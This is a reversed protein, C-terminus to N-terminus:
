STPKPQQFGFQKYTDFLRDKDSENKINECIENYIIEAQQQITNLYLEHTAHQEDEKLFYLIQLLKAMVISDHRVYQRIAAFTYTLLDKFSLASIFVKGGNENKYCNYNRLQKRQLLLNGLYDLATLATGPDNIGPSMAKLIIEIMQKIGINPHEGVWEEEDVIICGKLKKVEQETIKKSVYFSPSNMSVFAGEPLATKIEFQISENISALKSFDYDRIYGISNFTIPEWNTVPEEQFLFSQQETLKSIGKSTQKFLRHLIKSIQVSQSISHIFYIFLFLCVIGTLVAFLVGLSPIYDENYDNPDLRLLTLISHIIAGLYFGLVVQHKKDSILGPLLRPSFSNAAQNLVVMVMSFSFVMLSILAGILAGLITRSTNIDKVVLISFHKNLFTAVESRDAFMFVIGIVIILTALITPYFAISAQIRKYLDKIRNIWGEM